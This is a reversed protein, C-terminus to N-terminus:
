AEKKRDKQWAQFASADRTVVNQERRGSQKSSVRVAVQEISYAVYNRFSPELPVSSSSQM